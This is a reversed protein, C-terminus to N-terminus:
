IQDDILPNAENHKVTLIRILVYLSITYNTAVTPSSGVHSKERLM